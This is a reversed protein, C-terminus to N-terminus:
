TLKLLCTWEGGLVINVGLADRYTIRCNLNNINKIPFDFTQDFTISSYIATRTDPETERILVFSCSDVQNTGRINMGFEDFTLLFVGENSEIAPIPLDFSLLSVRSVRDISPTLIFKCTSPDDGSNERNRSDILLIPM